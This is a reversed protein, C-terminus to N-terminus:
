CNTDHQKKAPSYGETTKKANTRKAVKGAIEHLEHIKGDKLIRLIEIRTEKLNKLGFQNVM